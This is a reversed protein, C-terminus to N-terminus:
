TSRQLLVFNLLYLRFIHLTNHAHTLFLDLPVLFHEDPIHRRLKDIFKLLTLDLNFFLRGGCHNVLFLLVLGVLLGDLHVM